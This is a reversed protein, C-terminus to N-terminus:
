SKPCQPPPTSRTSTPVRRELWKLELTIEAKVPNWINVEYITDRDTFYGGAYSADPWERMVKSSQVISSGDPSYAM